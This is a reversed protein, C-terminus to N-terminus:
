KMKDTIFADCYKILQAAFEPNVTRTYQVLKQCVEVIEAISTDTELKKIAATIKSITDAEKPAPLKYERNKVETNIWDLQDYMMILQNEKTVLLSKKMERWKYKEVWRGITKESVGTREHIEKQTLGEKVFLIQAFERKQQMSDKKM